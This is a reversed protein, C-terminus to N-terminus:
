GLLGPLLFEVERLNLQPALFLITVIRQFFQQASSLFRSGFALLRSLFLLKSVKHSAVLQVIKQDLVDDQEVGGGPAQRFETLLAFLM